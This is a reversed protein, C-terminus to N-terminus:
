SYVCIIRSCVYNLDLQFYVSFDKNITKANLSTGYKTFTREPELQLGIYVSNIKGYKNFKANTFVWM